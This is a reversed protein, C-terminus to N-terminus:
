GVRVLDARYRERRHTYIDAARLLGAVEEDTLERVLKAPAGVILSREPFSKRETIIAGAGVLSNKGIVAGNMVIAQIGILTGEGITCGHLMVQHGITVRPGIDMPFGPDTHLVSCEQVNTEEGLRIPENDGRLVAGFWIGCREGLTVAGIVSASDTIYASQPITPVMDGVRYIPM